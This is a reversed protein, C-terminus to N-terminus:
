PISSQRTIAPRYVSDNTAQDTVTAYGYWIATPDSCRIEVWGDLLSDEVGFFDLNKQWLGAQDFTLSGSAVEAGQDDFITVYFVTSQGEQPDAPLFVGLNTRYFGDHEVSAIWATDGVLVGNVNLGYSGGTDANTYTRSAIVLPAGDTSFISLGGKTNRLGFVSTVVNALTLQGYGVIPMPESTQPEFAPGSNRLEPLLLLVVSTDTSNLNLISVDSRWFSGSGGAINAVAPVTGGPAVFQAGVPAAAALFIISFVLWRHMFVEPIL